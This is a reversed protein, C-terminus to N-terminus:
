RYTAAYIISLKKEQTCIDLAHSLKQLNIKIQQRSAWVSISNFFTGIVDRKVIPTKHLTDDVVPRM